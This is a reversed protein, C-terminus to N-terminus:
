DSTFRFASTFRSPNHKWFDKCNRDLHVREDDEVDDNDNV